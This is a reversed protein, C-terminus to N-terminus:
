GDEHAELRQVVRNPWLIRYYFGNMCIHDVPQYNQGIAELVPTPYFQARFIVVGFEQSQIRAIMDSTDLLDNKYLNLLQTPNTVVPQGSLISFMAEESFVPGDSARAYDLIELGAALDDETVLHGLQSYGMADHYDFTTCDGQVVRDAVGLGRAIPGFVPGATPMHLTRSAQALYLLPILVALLAPAWDARRAVVQHLWLLARRRAPGDGNSRGVSVDPAVDAPERGSLSAEQLRGLALGSTVCAAAIASAFYGFGAGWKGSLLGLGVAFLLWLSYVSLRDWFLEWVLYGAGLAVLVPHLRFWQGLLFVTQRYDFENVNAQITNIWWQGDTAVSLLWFIGGAAVLL